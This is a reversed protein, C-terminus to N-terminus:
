KKIFMRTTQINNNTVQVLYVGAHFDKVDIQVYLNSTKKMYVENGLVDTIRIINDANASPFSCNLIDTLPNPWLKISKDIPDITSVSTSKDMGVNIVTDTNLYFDGEKTLYGNKSVIFHYNNLVPLQKFLAMGLGGTLISDAGIKVYANNLPASGEKLMIKVDAETQILNITILTDSYINLIGVADQYYPYSVDYDLIGGTAIFAAIGSSNTTLSSGSFAVAGGWVAKQSYNNIVKFSVNFTRKTLLFNLTTDSHIVIQQNLIPQYLQHNLSVTFVQPMNSYSAIGTSDTLKIIGYLNVSCNIIASNTQKDKAAVNVSYNLIAPPNNKRRDLQDLYLSAPVLNQGEGIGETFDVPSTNFYLNNTIGEVPQVIANFAPGSTGIVYGNGFQRSDIIYTKGAPYSLGVTNYFVSQTSTYGHIASDGEASFIAELNDGNVTCADFLNAMSLYMDFNSAFVSSDTESHLIVNGNSYPYKFSYNHRGHSAKSNKLLCDNSELTFLYGNGGDGTYQPNKLFCSDVTILRSQNLLIGNSLLHIDDTNAAPKYSHVNKIWCNEVNRLELVNSANVEYAGTGNISFDNEAWGSNPNEANGISLNEIGCETIHKNVPYVRANDRTKLIYRTPADIGLLNNVADITDIHRLFALGKIAEATWKGTMNYDAIFADTATSMVVVLDGKHFGAVSQVPIIRTPEPLDVSINTGASAPAFWSASQGTMLIINKNRM